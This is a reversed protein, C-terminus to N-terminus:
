DRIITSIEVLNSYTCLQLILRYIQQKMQMIVTQNSYGNSDLLLGITIRVPLYNANLDDSFPFSLSVGSQVRLSAFSHDLIGGYAVWSCIVVAMSGIGTTSHNM